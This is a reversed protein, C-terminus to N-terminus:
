SVCKEARQTQLLWGVKTICQSNGQGHGNELHIFSFLLAELFFFVYVLIVPFRIVFNITVYRFYCHEAKVFTVLHSQGEDLM